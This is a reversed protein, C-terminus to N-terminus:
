YLYNNEDDWSTLYKAWRNEKVKPQEVRDSPEYSGSFNDTSEQFRETQQNNQNFHNDLKEQDSKQENTNKLENLARVRERCDRSDGQFFM